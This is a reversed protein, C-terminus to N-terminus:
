APGAFADMGTVAENAFFRAGGACGSVTKHIVGIRASAASVSRASLAGSVSIFKGQLTPTRLPSVELASRARWDRRKGVASIVVGSLRVSSSLWGLALVSNSPRRM